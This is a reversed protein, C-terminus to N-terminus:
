RNRKCCRDAGWWNDLLTMLPVAQMNLQRVLTIIYFLYEQNQDLEVVMELWDDYERKLKNNTLILDDYFQGSRVQSSLNNTGEVISSMPNKAKGLLKKIADQSAGSLESINTGYLRNYKPNNKSQNHKELLNKM